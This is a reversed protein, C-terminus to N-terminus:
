QLEGRHDPCYDVDVGTVTEESRWGSGAEDRELIRTRGCGARDCQTHIPFATGAVTTMYAKSM